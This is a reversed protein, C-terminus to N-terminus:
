MENVKWHKILQKLIQGINYSNSDKKHLLEQVKRKGIGRQTKGPLKPTSKNCQWMLQSTLLYKETNLNQLKPCKKSNLLNIWSM